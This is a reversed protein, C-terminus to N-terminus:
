VIIGRLFRDVLGPRWTERFASSAAQGGGGRSCGSCSARSCRACSGSARTADSRPRSAVPPRVAAGRNTRTVAAACCTRRERMSPWAWPTSSRRASCCIAACDDGDQRYVSNLNLLNLDITRDLAFQDTSSDIIEIDDIWALMAGLKFSSVDGTLTVTGRVGDGYIGSSVAETVVGFTVGPAIDVPADALNGIHLTGNNVQFNEVDGFDLYQFRVSAPTAAVNSLGFTASIKSIRLVKGDGFGEVPNVVTLNGDEYVTAGDDYDLLFVPYGDFSGQVDWVWEWLNGCMDYLGFNNPALTGVDQPYGGATECYWAIELLNPELYCSSAQMSFTGNYLPSETGARCAYEWEAETPLRYGDADQNWVVVDGNISYAPSYGEFISLTNCFEVAELWSVSDIPRSKWEGLTEGSLIAPFYSPNYGMVREFQAWNVETTSMAFDHPIVVEHQPWEIPLAGSENRASGM